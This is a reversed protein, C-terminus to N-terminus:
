GEWHLRNKRYNIGNFDNIECLEKFKDTYFTGFSKPVKFVFVDDLLEKKFFGKRVNISEITNEDKGTLTLLRSKEYDLCDIPKIIHVLYYQKNPNTFPLYQITDKTYPELKNKVKESVVMNATSHIDTIEGDEGPPTEQMVLFPEWKEKLSLNTKIFQKELEDFRAEEKNDALYIGTYKTDRIFRWVQM